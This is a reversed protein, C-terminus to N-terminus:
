GGRSGTGSNTSQVDISVQVPTSYETGDYARYTFYVSGYYNTDPVYTFSGDSNFTLTGFQIPAGPLEATLPELDPDTDNIM